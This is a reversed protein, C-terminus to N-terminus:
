SVRGYGVVRAWHANIPALFQLHLQSWCSLTDESAGLVELYYIKPGMRHGIKAFTVINYLKVEM